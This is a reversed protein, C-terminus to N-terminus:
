NCKVGRTGARHADAIDVMNNWDTAFIKRLVIGLTTRQLGTVNLANAEETSIGYSQSLIRNMETLYQKAMTEHDANENGDLIGHVLEHLLTSAIYAKSSNAHMAENIFITANIVGDSTTTTRIRGAVSDVPWPTNPYAEVFVKREDFILNVKPSVGYIEKATQIIDSAIQNDMLENAVQGQCPHTKLNNIVNLVGITEQEIQQEEHYYTDGGGGPDNPDYPQDSPGENTYVCVTTTSSHTYEWEGCYNGYCVQQYYDITITTCDIRETGATRLTPNRFKRTAKGFSYYYGEFIGGKLNTYYIIGSFGTRIGAMSVKSTNSGSGADDIVKMITGTMTGKENLYILLNSYSSLAESKVKRSNKFSTRIKGQLPNTFSIPVEVYRRGNMKTIIKAQEWTPKGGQPLTQRQAAFWAKASDLFTRPERASQEQKACRVLIFSLLLALVLLPTVKKM